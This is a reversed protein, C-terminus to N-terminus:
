RVFPWFYPLLPTAVAVILIELPLGVRWYDGFRYGGPGMVLLNNQHGIPTLFACSAGIAVAMLFPDPSVGLGAAVTAAIPAMIVATAANNMIDSVFMSIVLVVALSAYESQEITIALLGRSLLDTVGNAELSQGVPLLAALVVLVPGDLSRYLDRARVVRALLLVVVGAVLALAPPALGLGIAALAAGFAAIAIAGARRDHIVLQRDGLPLADFASVADAVDAPDGQLLLVDGPEFRFAKLAGFHQAGQRAVGLINVHYRSRIRLEEPTSGIPPSTPRLVVEALTTDSPKLKEDPKPPAGLSIGAWGQLRALAEPAGEVLLADDSALRTWHTVGLTWRGKRVIGLLVVDRQELKKSIELASQDLLESAAPLHLEAVYEDIGEFARVPARASPILRWGVGALFGLGLVAVAAGVPVFDFLAFQEGLAGSRYSSVIINPPTGILTTMGGLMTAFSLPMLIRSPSLGHRRATAIALPMLMALAGVNNVFASLAAGLTCFLAVQRAISTQDAVGIRALVGIVGTSELARSFVLVAAVTIVAPHGFGLFAEVPPVLGGLVALILVLLAVVDHRWRAWAFLALALVLLGIAFAESGLDGIAM